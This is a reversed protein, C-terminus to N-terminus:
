PYTLYPTLDEFNIQAGLACRLEGVGGLGGGENPDALFSSMEKYGGSSLTRIKTRRCSVRKASRCTIPYVSPEEIYNHM